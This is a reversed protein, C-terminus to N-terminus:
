IHFMKREHLVLVMLLRDNKMVKTRMQFKKNLKKLLKKEKKSSSIKGDKPEDLDMYDKEMIKENKEELQNIYM